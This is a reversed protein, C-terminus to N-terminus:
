FGRNKLDAVLQVYFERVDFGPINERNLDIVDGHSIGRKGCPKLHTYNSGWKFSPEAVLGDNAGSYKKVLPYSVNLPFKGGTARGLTSGVSQYYVEPSDIVKENFERCAHDTLDSVAAIFDPQTDGLAVASSNYTDAIKGVMNEPAVNLLNDVFLCGRHPTNVTTLTAVYKSAGLVSIAYRSDLGGKSHAIINVKECGTKETIYKIRDYIQEASDAVSSASEHQGYYIEAGNKILEGPVRGWYNLMKSDRFFVGHVLLIPYKTSCIANEKRKENLKIKDAELRVESRVTHIIKFLMILNAVPVMGLIIGWARKEVGLQVSTCYVRTIGNWFLFAEVGIALLSSLGWLQWQDPIYRFAIVIHYVLCAVASWLFVTLLECGDYAIRLRIGPIKWSALSPFINIGLALAILVVLVAINGGQSVYLFSNALASIIIINLARVIYKM